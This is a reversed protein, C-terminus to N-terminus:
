KESRKMAVEAQGIAQLPRPDNPRIRQAERLEAIGEPYRKLTTLIMGLNLRAEFSTPDAQVYRKAFDLAKPFDGIKVCGNLLNTWAVGNRPEYQLATEFYPIAENTRNLKVLLQGLHIQAPVDDPSIRIAQQYQMVADDFRKLAVLVEALQHHPVAEDPQRDIVQQLETAAEDFRSQAALARALNMRCALLDPRLVIASRYASEAQDFRKLNLRYNGLLAFAAAYGPKEKVIEELIPIGEEYKSKLGLHRAKEYAALYPLMQKVDPLNETEIAESSTTMDGGAIYGLGALKSQEKESLKVKETQTRVFAAQISELINQMEQCLESSSEALNIEEAPDSRLDYLEPQNTRIYKWRDTIVTKLPCWRNLAYPTEAEGYCPKLPLSNGQLAVRLSRGSIQKPAPIRLTDLVTPMLDVLSVPNGVRLGPKCDRPGVFVLPVHLTTNYVLMSHENELHQDLGEGHDAAVVVMTNRDLKLENLFSILRDFAQLEVAIGADYPNQKFRDGFLGPRADYPGHADYLHVWCFFPRSARQKLWALASDIIEAGDRRREDYEMAPAAKSLDDDYTDFGRALGFQRDLVFAAIFAGTDYGNQKLIEPLSPINGALRGEGNLRLGHEPPYLGTLMTAHSPLTIPAPAYAHDFVVGRKAFRDLASTLGNQYGYSGLHDARTTDLTILILNLKPISWYWYGGTVVVLTTLVFAAIIMTRHEVMNTALKGPM